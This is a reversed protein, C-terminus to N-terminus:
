FVHRVGLALGRSNDGPAVAMPTGAAAAIGFRAKAENRVLSYGGWVTTRKSLPHDYRVTASTADADSALRNEFSGYDLLIAGQGVPIYASIDYYDNEILNADDRRIQYLVGVKASRFTYSAGLASLKETNALTTKRSHHSANLSLPGVDYQLSAGVANGVSRMGANPNEGLAYLIKASLGGMKPTAYQVSNTSRSFGGDFFYNASNGWSMGYGMTYLAHTMFYPTYQRGITVAGFDGSLGVIALRGFLIGGQAATGDDINLGNELNWVVNMGNALSETGRFGIRSPATGGSQLRNLSGQGNNGFEMYGDLLGYTTVSSNQAQATAAFAGLVAMGILIKKM